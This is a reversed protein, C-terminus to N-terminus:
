VHIVDVYWGSLDDPILFQMVFGLTGSIGIESSTLKVLWQPGSRIEPPVPIDYDLEVMSIPHGFGDTYGSALLDGYLVQRNYVEDYTDLTGEPYIEIEGKSRGQAFTFLSVAHGFAITFMKATATEIEFAADGTDGILKYGLDGEPDYNSQSYTNILSDKDWEDFNFLYASWNVIDDPNTVNVIQNTFSEDDMVRTFIDVYWRADDEVFLIENSHEWGNEEYNVMDVVNHPNPDFGGPNVVDQHLIMLVATEGVGYLALDLATITFFSSPLIEDWEGDVTDYKWVSGSVVPIVTRNRSTTLAGNFTPTPTGNSTWLGPNPGFSAYTVGTSFEWFSAGLDLEDTTHDVYVTYGVSSAGGHRTFFFESANYFHM